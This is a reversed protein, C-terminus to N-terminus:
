PHHHKTPLEFNSSPTLTQDSHGIQLFRDSYPLALLHTNSNSQNPM